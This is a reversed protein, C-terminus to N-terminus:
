PAPSPLAVDWVRASEDYAASAAKKGDASFTLQTVSDTHAGLLLLQQGTEVDWLRITKEPGSSLARKGDASLALAWVADRHGEFKRLEKGSEIEWLRLTKDTSATLLRKGDPLFAVGETGQRHGDLKKLEKGAAVDWVRITGDDGTSALLKDDASFSVSKIIQTHGEFKKLEKGAAADWLRVTCDPDATPKGDADVAKGDSQFAGGASALYKGDHSLTVAWIYHKHGEFRKLEKKAQPDWLALFGRKGGLFVGKGDAQFALAFLADKDATFEAQNKMDLVTTVRVKGAQDASALRGGDPSFAAARVEKNHWARGKERPSWSDAFTLLDWNDVLADFFKNIQDAVVRPTLGRNDLLATLYL